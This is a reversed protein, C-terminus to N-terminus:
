ILEKARIIAIRTIPYVIIEYITKFLAQAVIMIMLQELPMSGFFAVSIFILADLGEGCLTSLICRKMLGSNRKMMDMIKANTISGVLYALLSAILIRISNSLVLEFANQHIFFEASPLAIAVNYAIVAVVNMAFGLMIVRQTNKFGYVEALVDNVIYVIPFIIVATPLTFGLFQFTKFALINSIILSACFIGCLIVYLDNKKM